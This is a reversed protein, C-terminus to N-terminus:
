TSGHGRERGGSGVLPQMGALLSRCFGEVWSDAGAMRQEQEEVGTGPEQGGIKSRSLTCCCLPGHPRGNPRALALVGHAYNETKISSQWYEDDGDFSLQALSDV